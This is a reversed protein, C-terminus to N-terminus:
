WPLFGKPLNLGLWIEFILYNGATILVGKAVTRWWRGTEVIRLFLVAFVFTSLTFGLRSVAFAYGFLLFCIIYFRGRGPSRERSPAESPPVRMMIAQILFWLALLGIGAGAGFSLLGPGPQNLTGLGIVLSQQCIFISLLVFFFAPAWYNKAM